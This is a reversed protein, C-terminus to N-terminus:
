HFSAKNLANNERKKNSNKKEQESWHFHSFSYNRAYKIDCIANVNSAYVWKFGNM